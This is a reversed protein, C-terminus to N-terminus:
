LGHRQGFFAVSWVVAELLKEKVEQSLRKAFLEKRKSFADKPMGIRARKKVEHKEDDTLAGLYLFKKVQEVKHGDIVINIIGGGKGSFKMVKTKKGNIKM